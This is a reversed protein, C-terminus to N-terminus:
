LSRKNITRAIKIRLTEPAIGDGMEEWLAWECNVLTKTMGYWMALYAKPKFPIPGALVKRNIDYIVEEETFSLITYDTMLIQLLMEIYGGIV